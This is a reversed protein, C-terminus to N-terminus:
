SAEYEFTACLGFHDSAFALPTASAARTTAGGNPRPALPRDLIRELLGPAFSRRARAAPRFFVYDIRQRPAGPDFTHALMNTEPHPEFTALDAKAGLDEFGDLAAVLRRYPDSDRLPELGNINFDGCVIFPRDADGVERVLTALEDLQAARVAIAADDYGAQLHTNLLDFTPGHDLDIQAHLTGKRALKDWGVHPPRYHRVGPRLLPARSAIGLGTGRFTVSRWHARNHDRFRSAFTTTGLGDFFTEADRSLLEQVCLVDPVVCAAHVDEHQFRAPVPARLSTIADYAGQGMGFCNWTGVRFLM